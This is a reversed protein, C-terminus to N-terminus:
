AWAPPSDPGHLNFGRLRTHDVPPREPQQQRAKQCAKPHQGRTQPPHLHALIHAIIAHLLALTQAPHLHWAQSPADEVAMALHQGVVAWGVLHDDVALFETLGASPAVGDEGNIREDILEGFAETQNALDRAFRNGAMDVFRAGNGQHSPAIHVKARHGVEGLPGLLEWPDLNARHGPADVGIAGEGGVGQAIHALTGFRRDLACQPVVSQRIRAATGAKLAVVIVEEGAIAALHHEADIRADVGALAPDAAVGFLPAVEGKGEGKGELARSLRGKGPARAGHHGEIRTIAIDQNEGRGRGVVQIGKDWGDGASGPLLKDVIGVLREEVAGNLGLVGRARDKLGEDGDGGLLLAEVGLGEELARAEEGVETAAEAAMVLVAVAFQVQAFRQHLRAIGVEAGQARADSHLGDGGGGALGAKALARADVKCALRGPQHGTGLPLARVERAWALANPGRGVGRLASNTLAKYRGRGQLHGVAHRSQGRASCDVTRAQHGKPRLAFEM